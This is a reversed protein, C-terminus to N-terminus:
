IKVFSVLVFFSNLKLNVSFYFWDNANDLIGNSHFACLSFCSRRFWRKITQKTKTKQKKLHTAHWKVWQSKFNGALFTLAEAADLEEKQHINSNNNAESAYQEPFDEGKSCIRLFHFCISSCVNSFVNGDLMMCIWNTQVEEFEMRHLQKEGTYIQCCEGAMQVARTRM